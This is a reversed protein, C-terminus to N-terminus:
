PKYVCRAQATYQPSHKGSAALAPVNVKPGFCEQEAENESPLCYNGRSIKM